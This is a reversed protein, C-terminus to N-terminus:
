DSGPEWESSLECVHSHCRDEEQSYIRYLFGHSLWTNGFINFWKKLFVDSKSRQVDEASIVTPFVYRLKVKKYMSEVSSFVSRIVPVALSHHTIWHPFEICFCRLTCQWWCGISSLFGPSWTLRIWFADVENHDWDSFKPGRILSSTTM